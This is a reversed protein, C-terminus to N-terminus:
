ARRKLKPVYLKNNGYALYKKARIMRQVNEDKIRYESCGVISIIFAYKTFTHFNDEGDTLIVTPRQSKSIAKMCKEIDTGGSTKLKFIDEQNMPAISGNFKYVDGLCGMQRMRCALAMAMELRNVSKGDITMQGSMSGSIDIYLDFATMQSQMDRVSVDMMLVDSFLYHEDLLDEIEDAEFLGEETVISKTGFGKHFGKISMNIMKGVEKKNLMVSEIMQANEEMQMMESPGKGALDGDGIQDDMQQKQEIEDSADQAAQGMSNKIRDNAGSMDNQGNGGPDQLQNKLDEDQEIIKALMKAIHKLAIFSHGLKNETTTKLLYNGMNNLMEQWWYMHEDCKYRMEESPNYYSKFIDRIMFDPVDKYEEEREPHRFYRILDEETWKDIPPHVIDLFGADM